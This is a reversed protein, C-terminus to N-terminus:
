STIQLTPYTLYKNNSNSLIDKPSLGLWSIAYLFFKIELITQQTKEIKKGHIMNFYRDGHTM